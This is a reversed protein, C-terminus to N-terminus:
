TKQRNSFKKRVRPQEESIWETAYVDSLERALGELDPYISSEVIGCAKLDRRMEPISQQSIPIPVLRSDMEETLERLDLAHSGHLTFHSHQVSFRASVHPPDVAIPEKPLNAEGDYLDPLYPRTEKWSCLLISGNKINRENFWFPDLAWVIADTEAKKDAIAFYLAVLAADTWDLLRTRGEYHQLTFYWEWKNAPLRRTTVLQAGRREFEDRFEYETYLDFEEGNRWMNPLLPWDENGQGRFWPEVGLTMMEGRVVSKALRKLLNV